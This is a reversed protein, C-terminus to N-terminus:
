LALVYRACCYAGATLGVYLAAIVAMSYVKSTVAVSGTDSVPGRDTTRATATRGGRLALAIAQALILVLVTVITGQMPVATGLDGYIIGSVDPHRGCAWAEGGCAGVIVTAALLPSGLVTGVLMTLMGTSLKTGRATRAVLLAGTACVAVMIWTSVAVLYFLGDHGTSARVTAGGVIARLGIVYGLALAPGAVALAFGTLLAARIRARPHLRGLMDRPITDSPLWRPMRQPVRRTAGAVTYLCPLAILAMCGPVTSLFTLPLYSTVAWGILPWGSIHPDVAPHSITTISANDHVILWLFYVPAAGLTSVMAAVTCRRRLSRATVPIWAAASEAAWQFLVAMIVCLTLASAALDAVKWAGSDFVGWTGANAYTMAMPQGAMVGLTIPVAHRIVSPKRAGAMTGLQGRWMAACAYGAIFPLTTLVVPVYIIAQLLLIPGNDGAASETVLRLMTGHGLGTALSGVWLTFVLNTAILASAIGASFMALGDPRCLAGPDDLDALRRRPAPHLALFGPTRRRKQSASALFDELAAGMAARDVLAATADAHTERVRLVANRTLYTLVTLAIVAGLQHGDPVSMGVTFARPGFPDRLLGPVSLTILYPLLTMIVFVRWAAYTIFTPRSDRNRLHALEHLVIGDFVPRAERLKRSLDGGLKLYGRGRRSFAWAATGSYPARLCRPPEPLGAQAALHRVREAMARQDARDERLPLLRQPRGPVWWPLLWAGDRSKRPLWPRTLHVTWWPTALYALATVLIVLAIGALTWAAITGTFPVSCGLVVGAASSSLGGSGLQSPVGSTCPDAGRGSEIGVQLGIYGYISGTSAILMAVLVAFRLTTASPLIKRDTLLRGAAPAAPPTRGDNV